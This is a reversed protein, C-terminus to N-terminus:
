QGSLTRGIKPLRNKWYNVFKRDWKAPTLGGAPPAPARLCEFGKCAMCFLVRPIPQINPRTGVAFPVWPVISKGCPCARFTGDRIRNRMQSAKAQVITGTFGGRDSSRSKWANRLWTETRDREDKVRLWADRRHAHCLRDPRGLRNPAPNNDTTCLCTCSIWLISPAGVPAAPFQQWERSIQLPPTLNLNAYHFHQGQVMDECEGCMRTLYGPYVPSPRPDLVGTDQERGLPPIMQWYPATPPPLSPSIDNIRQAMVDLDGPDLNLRTTTQTDCSDCVTYPRSRPHRKTRPIGPCAPYIHPPAQNGCPGPPAYPVPLLPLAVLAQIDSCAPAAAM